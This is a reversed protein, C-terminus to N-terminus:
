PPGPTRHAYTLPPNARFLWFLYACDGGLRELSDAWAKIYVGQVMGSRWILYLKEQAMEHETLEARTTQDEADRAADSCPQM